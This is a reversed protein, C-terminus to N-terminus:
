SKGAKDMTLVRKAANRGPLGTIGGGPHASAGCLFLNKIPTNYQATGHVPRMMFSQDIAMEGHHWHGGSNHYESAIDEPTLMESQLVLKSIGPAYTELTQIVNTMFDKRGKKWGQKLEYPAFSANISMVHQGEPALASNALSPLTMELIPHDPIEGYKSANFAHEIYRMDPAILLRHRLDEISLGSFEPLGSLALHIKAVDGDTRSKSIRHVFMADLDGPGVMDIFTTKADANSLVIDADISTDDALIVGVATGDRLQIKEVLVNTKIEVGAKTVAAELNECLSQTNTSLQGGQTEGFLKQLYTLVTTPTRPGMHHGLCADLAIAGKLAESDFEENLVDFINIGGVRLFERMSETGLGFRINWGMKGLTMQDQRDMDKLRPPKNLMLSGLAKAYATFEKKFNTFASKDADSLGQGAASTTTLTLHNGDEALAITNVTSSNAQKFGLEKRIKNHLPYALHALGPAKFGDAFERSAIGGGVADRAELITVAYGAKALYLASILGNHGAGIIVVQKKTM